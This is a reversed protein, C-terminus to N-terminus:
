LLKKSVNLLPASVTIEDVSKSYPKLLIINERNPTLREKSAEFQPHLVFVSIVSDGAISFRGARDSKSLIESANEIKVGSVPQGTQADLCRGFIQGYSGPSNMLLVPVIFFLTRLFPIHM